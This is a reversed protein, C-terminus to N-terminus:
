KEVLTPLINRIHGSWNCRFLSYEIIKRIHYESLNAHEDLTIKVLNPHSNFLFFFMVGDNKEIQLERLETAWKKLMILLTADTKCNFMELKHLHQILSRTMHISDYTLDAHMIHLETIPM